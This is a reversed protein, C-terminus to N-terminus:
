VNKWKMWMEGIKVKMYGMKVEKGKEREEKARRIIGQVEREKRTLDEIYVGRELGKKKRMIQKKTELNEITAVIIKRREEKKLAKEIRTEIGM